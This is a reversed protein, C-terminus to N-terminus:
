DNKILPLSLQVTEDESKSSSPKMRVRDISTSSLKIRASSNFLRTYTTFLQFTEEKSKSSSPKM